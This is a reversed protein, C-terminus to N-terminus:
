RRESEIAQTLRHAWQRLSDVQGQRYWRIAEHDTKEKLSDALYLMDQVITRIKKEINM